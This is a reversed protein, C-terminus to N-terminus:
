RVIANYQVTGSAGPAISAITWRVHTVDGAQAPRTGGKADSVTLAGLAGWTKGGDVSVQAGADAGASFSVAAPLPNTVIFNTVAQASDNHYATSFVLKDGPVVVKPESAVVHSVGNETVTKELRVASNLSVPNTQAAAFAPGAMLVLALASAAFKVNM